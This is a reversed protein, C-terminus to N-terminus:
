SATRLKLLSHNSRTRVSTQMGPMNFLETIIHRNNCHRGQGVQRVVMEIHDHRILTLLNKHPVGDLGTKHLRQSVRYQNISELSLFYGSCSRLFFLFMAMFSMLPQIPQPVHTLVQGVSTIRWSGFVFFANMLYGASQWIQWKHLIFQGTSAMVMVGSLDM